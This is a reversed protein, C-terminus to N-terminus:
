GGPEKKLGNWLTQTVNRALQELTTQEQDEGRLHGDLLLMALGHVTAWAARAYARPDGQRVLGQEQYRGIAGLLMGFTASATEELSQPRNGSLEPSFMLRFRAPHRLAFLVYAVGAESLRSESDAVEALRKEIAKGLERFGDEALAAVLAGRDAFHHYPATHSVGARRAVGRLSLQAPGEQELLELGAELLSRRLDGHHYRDSSKRGPQKKQM